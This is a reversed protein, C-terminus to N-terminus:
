LDISNTYYFSTAVSHQGKSWTAGTQASPSSFVMVFDLLTWDRSDWGDCMTNMVLSQLGEKGTNRLDAGEEPNGRSHGSILCFLSVNPREGDKRCSINHRLISNKLSKLPDDYLESLIQFLGKMDEWILDQNRILNQPARWQLSNKFNSALLDLSIYYDDEFM